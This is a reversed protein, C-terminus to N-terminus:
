VRLFLPCAQLLYLLFAIAGSDYNLFIQISVLLAFVAIRKNKNRVVM